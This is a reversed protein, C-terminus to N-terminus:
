PTDRRYYVGTTGIVPLEDPDFPIGNEECLLRVALLHVVPIGAALYRESLGSYPSLEIERPALLGNGTKLMYSNEGAGLGLSNGGANVFLKIEGYLEEHLAIDQAYSEIEAPALGNAKLRAIMEEILAIDDPDGIVYGIMNRGMDGGGGLTILEPMRSILGADYVTRVMEPFTYQPIDAGYASSGVSTTYRLDLDMVEAACLVALNLGPYSGSFNAGVADGAKLGAEYFYRVCLAAFDPLQSTRKEPLAASTTMIATFEDGLLGIGLKDGESLPIGRALKEERILRAAESHLRAAQEMVGAFPLRNEEQAAETASGSQVPLSAQDQTCASLLGALLLLCLVPALIGFSAFSPVKM